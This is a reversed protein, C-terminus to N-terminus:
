KIKLEKKIYNYIDELILRSNNRAWEAQTKDHYSKVYHKVIDPVDHLPLQKISIM